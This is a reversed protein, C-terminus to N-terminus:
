YIGEKRQVECPHHEIFLDVFDGLPMDVEPIYRLSHPKSYDEPYYTNGQGDWAHHYSIEGEFIVETPADRDLIRIFDGEELQFVKDRKIKWDQDTWKHKGERECETPERGLEERVWEPDAPDGITPRKHEWCRGCSDRIVMADNPWVYFRHGECGTEFHLETVGRM